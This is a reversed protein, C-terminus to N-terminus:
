KCHNSACIGLGAALAGGVFFALAVLVWAGTTPPEPQAELQERRVECTTLLCADRRAREPSLLLATGGDPTELMQPPPAEDCQAYLPADFGGDAALLAALAVALV